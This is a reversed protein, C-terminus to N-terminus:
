EEYEIFIEDSSCEKDLNIKSYSQKVNMMYMDFKNMFRLSGLDSSKKWELHFEKDYKKWRTITFEINLEEDEECEFRVIYNEYDSWNSSVEEANLTTNIYGGEYDYNEINDKDIEKECYECWKNYIDTLNIQNPIGDTSMLEKFNELLKKNELASNKLVDVLVCDLKTIYKGYDYNELYPIMVSKVKDQIVKKIEGSYGFMDKIATAVCEELKEAIVKEIVGKEIENSICDKISKELNM